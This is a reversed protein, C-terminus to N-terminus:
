SWFQYVIQNNNSDSVTYIISCIFNIGKFTEVSATSRFPRGIISRTKSSFLFLGRRDLVTPVVDDFVPLTKASRTTTPTRRSAKKATSTARGAKNKVLPPVSAGAIAVNVKLETVPNFDNGDGGGRGGGEDGGNGGGGIGGSGGGLAGAGALGSADGAGTTGGSDGIEGDGEHSSSSHHNAGCLGAPVVSGVLM